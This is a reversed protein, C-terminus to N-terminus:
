SGVHKGELFDIAIHRPRGVEVLRFRDRPRTPDRVYERRRQLRASSAKVAIGEKSAARDVM